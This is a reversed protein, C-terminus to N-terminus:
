TCIWQSLKSLLYEYLLMDIKRTVPMVKAREVHNPKKQTRQFQARQSSDTDSDIVIPESILSLFKSQLFDVFRNRGMKKEVTRRQHGRNICVLGFIGLFFEEEYKAFRAFFIFESEKVCCVCCFECEIKTIWNARNEKKNRKEETKYTQSSLTRTSSSLSWSKQSLMNVTLNGYFHDQGKDM